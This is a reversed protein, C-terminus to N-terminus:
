DPIFSSLKPLLQAAFEEARLRAIATEETIGIPTAIRILAGDTRSTRFADLILYMRASYEDAVSRGHAQYWYIVFQKQQSHAIVYEGVSHFKGSPDKLSARQSSLFSWGAGPLCNKPSHITTGTRQSPFYAVFLTVPEHADSASYVRELFEGSGLVELTEPDIAQDIGTRGDILAPFSSLPECSVVVDSDGRRFVLWGVSLLIIVAILFRIDKV